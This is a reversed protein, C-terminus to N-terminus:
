ISWFNGVAIACHAFKWVSMSVRVCRTLPLSLSLPFFVIAYYLYIATFIAIASPDRVCRVHTAYEGTLSTDMKVFAWNFLFTSSIENSKPRWKSTRVPSTRTNLLKLFIFVGYISIRDLKTHMNISFKGSRTMQSTQKLKQAFVVLTQINIFNLLSDAYFGKFVNLQEFCIFFNWRNKRERPIALSIPWLCLSHLCFKFWTNKSCSFKQM